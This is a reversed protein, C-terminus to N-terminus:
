LCISYRLKLFYICHFMSFITIIIILCKFILWIDDNILGLHTSTGNFLYVLRLCSDTNNQTWIKALHKQTYKVSFVRLFSSFSHHFCRSVVEGDKRFIAITIRLKSIFSAM